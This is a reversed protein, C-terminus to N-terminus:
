WFTLKVVILLFVALLPILHLARGRRRREGEGGGGGGGGSGLLVDSSFYDFVTSPRGFLLSGTPGAVASGMVLPMRGGYLGVFDNLCQGRSKMHGLQTWSKTSIGALLAPLLFPLFPPLSAPSRGAWVDVGPLRWGERSSTCGLATFSRLAEPYSLHIIHVVVSLCM